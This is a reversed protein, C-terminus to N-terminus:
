LGPHLFSWSTLTSSRETDFEEQELVVSAKVTKAANLVDFEIEYKVSQAAEVESADDESLQPFEIEFSVAIPVDLTVGDKPAAMVAGPHGPLTTLGRAPSIRLPFARSDVVLNGRMGHTPLTVLERSSHEFYIRLDGYPKFDTSRVGHIATEVRDLRFGAKLMVTSPVSVTPILLRLLEDRRATRTHTGERIPVELSPNPNGTRVVYPARDSAFAVAVVHEGNDGIHVPMHRIMEPPTQDFKSTIQTWWDSVETAPVDFIAGTGEDIGIIYIVPDGGARNLSGALQRAKNERPWDRKCEIFDHEVPQGARIQDVATIVRAELDIARM